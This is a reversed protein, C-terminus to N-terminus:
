KKKFIKSFWGKQKEEDEEYYGYGYGYGYGPTNDISNLITAMSNYQGSSHLDNIVKVFARRSFDARVVYLQVDSQKMIIRGDTVLGVPPTDLIIVDFKKELKQM